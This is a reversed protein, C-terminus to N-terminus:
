GDKGEGRDHDHDLLRGFIARLRRPNDLAAIMEDVAELEATARDLAERFEAGAGEAAEPTSIHPLAEEKADTLQQAFRAKAARYAAHVEPGKARMAADLTADVEDTLRSAADGLPLGPTLEWDRESPPLRDLQTATNHLLAADLADRASLPGLSHIYAEAAQTWKGMTM